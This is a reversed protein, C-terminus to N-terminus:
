MVRRLISKRICGKLAQNCSRCENFAKERLIIQLIRRLINFFFWCNCNLGEPSTTFAWSSLAQKISSKGFRRCCSAICYMSENKLFQLFLMVLISRNKFRRTVFRTLSGPFVVLFVM